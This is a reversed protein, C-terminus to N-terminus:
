LKGVVPWNGAIVSKAPVADAPWLLWCRPLGDSPYRKTTKVRCKPHIYKQAWGDLAQSTREMEKLDDFVICNNEPTLKRFTADYASTQAAKGTLKDNTIKM